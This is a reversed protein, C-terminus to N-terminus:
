EDLCFDPLDQFVGRYGSYFTYAQNAFGTVYNVAGGTGGKDQYISYEAEIYQLVCDSARSHDHEVEQDAFEVIHEDTVGCTYKESSAVDYIIHVNQNNVGKLKGLEKPLGEEPIIMATIETPFVSLAVLSNTQGKIVGRYHVGLDIELTADGEPTVVSFGEAFLDVRYLQLEDAQDEGYLSIPLSISEPKEESVKNVADPQLKFYALPTVPDEIVPASRQHVSSLLQVSEFSEGEAQLAIIKSLVARETVKEQGWLAGTVMLCFFLYICKKM